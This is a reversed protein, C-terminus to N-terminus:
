IIIHLKRLNVPLDTGKGGCPVPRLFRVVGALKCDSKVIM